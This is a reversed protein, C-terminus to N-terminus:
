EQGISLPSGGRRFLSVKSCAEESTTNSLAGHRASSRQLTRNKSLSNCQTFAYLASCAQQRTRQSPPMNLNLTKLYNTRSIRVPPFICPIFGAHPLVVRKRRPILEITL